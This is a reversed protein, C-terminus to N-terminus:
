WFLFVREVCGVSLECQQAAVGQLCVQVPRVQPPPLHAAHPHEEDVQTFAKCLAVAVVLLCAVQVLGVPLVDHLEEVGAPVDFLLDLEPHLELRRLYLARLQDSM